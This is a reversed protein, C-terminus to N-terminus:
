TEWSAAAASPPSNSRIAVQRIAARRTAVKRIARKRSLNSPLRLIDQRRCIPTKRLSSGHHKSSRRRINPHRSAFIARLIGIVLWLGILGGLGYLIWIPQFTTVPRATPEESHAVITKDAADPTIKPTETITPTVVAATKDPTKGPPITAVAPKAATLSIFEVAQLLGQDFEKAKFRESLLRTLEDRKAPTFGMANNGLGLQIRHPQKSILVYLGGAKAAVAREKVLEAFYKGTAEPPLNEIQKVHGPPVHELTELTVTLGTDKNVKQLDQTAKQVTAASFLNARDKITGATPAPLPPSLNRDVTDYVLDLTQELGKDYTKAKLHGTLLSVLHDRDKATFAKASTNESVEVQLRPPDKCILVYIGDAKM